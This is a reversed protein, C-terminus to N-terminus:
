WRTTNVGHRLACRGSSASVSPSAVSRECGKPVRAGRHRAQPSQGPGRRRNVSFSACDCAESMGKPMFVVSGRRESRCSSSARRLPFTEVSPVSAARDPDGPVVRALGSAAPSRIPFFFCESGHDRSRRVGELDRQEPLERVLPLTPRRGRRWEPVVVAIAVPPAQAHTREQGEVPRARARRARVM